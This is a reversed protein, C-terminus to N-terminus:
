SGPIWITKAEIIATNAPLRIVDPTECYFALGKHSVLYRYKSGFLSWATGVVVLPEPERAVIECFAEPDLKVIVGCARIAQVTAAAAAAAAGAAGASM